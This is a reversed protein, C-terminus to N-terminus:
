RAASWWGDKACQSRMANAEELAMARTSFRRGMYLEGDLLVLAEVGYKGHYRLECTLTRTGKTLTWVSEGPRPKATPAPRYMWLLAPDTSM